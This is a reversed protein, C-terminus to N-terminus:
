FYAACASNCKQMKCLLAAHTFVFLCKKEVGGDAQWGCTLPTPTLAM